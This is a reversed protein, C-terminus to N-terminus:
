KAETKVFRVGPGGADIFSKDKLTFMSGKGKTVIFLRKQEVDQHCKACLLIGNRPDTLLEPWRSRKAIHHVQGQKPTLSLSKEVAVGCCRCKGEDRKWVARRFNRIGTDNATQQKAKEDLRSPGKPCARPKANVEALTPLSALVSSERPM